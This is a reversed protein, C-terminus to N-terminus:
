NQPQKTTFYKVLKYQEKNSKLAWTTYLRVSTAEESIPQSGLSM